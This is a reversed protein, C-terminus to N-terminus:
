ESRLNLHRLVPGLLPDRRAFEGLRRLARAEEQHIFTRSVPLGDTQRSEGAAIQESTKVQHLPDTLGFRADLIRFQRDPLHRHAFDVVLGQQRNRDVQADPGPLPDAFLDAATRVPSDFVGDMIEDRDSEVRVALGELSRAPRMANAQYAQERKIRADLEVLTVQRCIKETVLARRLELPTRDTVVVDPNGVKCADRMDKRVLERAQSLYDPPSLKERSKPTSRVHEWLKLAATQQMDDFLIRAAEARERFAEAQQGVYKHCVAYVERAAEEHRYPHASRDQLVALNAAFAPTNLHLHPTHKSM